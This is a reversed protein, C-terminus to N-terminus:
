SFMPITPHSENEDAIAMDEFVRVEIATHESGTLHISFSLKGKNEVINRWIYPAWHCYTVILRRFSVNM